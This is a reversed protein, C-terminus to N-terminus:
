SDTEGSGFFQLQVLTFFLIVMALGIAISAGYGMRYFRWATEYLYMIVMFSSRGPGGETMIYTQGFIKFHSILQTIAVFLIVPRLLPLTIYRTLRWSNAGDIRAAEYFTEPINQLGALYILMPFGFTWWITAVSISPIVTQKTALWPVGPVGVWALLFNLIGFQTNMMWGLVIGMVAVSLVVPSYFVTRLFDRGRLPQDVGLAVVLAFIANGAATLFAFLMTNRLSLWWLSDDVLDVYNGIGVFDHTKALIEWEFFSMYISYFIPIITFVAFLLMFPLVFLFNGLSWRWDKWTTASPKSTRIM